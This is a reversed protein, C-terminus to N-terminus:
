GLWPSAKQTWLDNPRKERLEEAVKTLVTHDNTGKYHSVAAWYQAEAAMLTNPHNEAVGRYDREADAWKKKKFAVRGLGMELFAKFEDKPLYGENRLREVGSSDLVLM